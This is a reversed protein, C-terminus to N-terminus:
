RRGNVFKKRISAMKEVSTDPYFYDMIIQKPMGSKIAEQMEQLQEKSFQMSSAREFLAETLEESQNPIIRSNGGTDEGKGTNADSTDSSEESQAKEAEDMSYELEVSQSANNKSKADQEDLFIRKEQFGDSDLMLIEEMKLSIIEVNRGEKKQKEFYALQKPTLIHCANMRRRVELIDHVYGKAGGDETQNFNPHDFPSYKEDLVPDIGRIFVICMKNDLKRVEDPSMIDRGLVDYNKSSSGQRGKTEGRSKKDITAKGLLESVYKHTSQENGGLYVFTDCNGPITEWTDKYLAKIQAFNQIIIISSIERSRMTSLLSCFDDPLPVNAFEDFVIMVHIPLKGGHVFDAQYYLEQFVQTYFLGLIFNYTKDNDPIVCFVVTRKAMDGDVGTGIESINMEDKSLIRLIDENELFALRSNASIIISRITDGAGRMCKNYQKVAPHNSGLPSEEELLRMRIDLKSPQGQETVEAESLLELVTRFNREPPKKEMWVYYFIASLYLGEAKEWFPDSPNSGKPTTNKILNTVLKIVYTDNRFYAFPNYCNSKKMDVLNLVVINYGHAKLMEGCARLIEGKPDTIIFSVRKLLQMLLPKVFFFTKGAGSGGCVLINGNLRLRRFNTSMRLTKSLIRNKEEDKDKLKRNAVEAKEFRATGFERGPMFNGQSTYYMLIAMAYTFVAIAITKWTYESFYNHFPHHYIYTMRPILMALTIDKQWAGGIYYGAIISLILGLIIMPVYPKKKSSQM